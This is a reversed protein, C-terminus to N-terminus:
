SIKKYLHLSLKDPLKNDLLNNKKSDEILNNMFALINVCGNRSSSLRNKALVM